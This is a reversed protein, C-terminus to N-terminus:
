PMGKWRRLAWEAVFCTLVFLCATPLIGPLDWLPRVWSDMVPVKQHPLSRAFDELGDIEVIRGGTRRAIKELLPRNAKM